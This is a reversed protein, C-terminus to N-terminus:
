IKWIQIFTLLIISIADVTIGVSILSVTERADNRIRWRLQRVRFISPKSEGYVRYCYLILLLYTILGALLQLLTGHPNRSILHYVKLHRKWWSFLCEIEWRLSYIFAIQKASLDKRSTAIWYVKRRCRFGVLYVPHTMSHNKDGLMVEAFFFTQEGKDFPLHRKVQWKTNKKLRAVFHKGEQIWEDFRQHDQYGRDLVGTEGSRLISSVFPREAEKGVTLHVKRPLGRNLDFGLHAKVKNTASTYDAWTMSLTADILSGDIAVLDGLQSHITSLKRSVKKALKDFLQCMQELGRNANAYYNTSKGLGGDPMLLQQTLSDNKIMQLLHRASTCEEVHYYILSRLQFHFTFTLERNSSSKLPTITPLLNEAPAIFETFTPSDIVTDIPLNPMSLPSASILRM